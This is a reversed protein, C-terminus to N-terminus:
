ELHKGITDILSSDITGDKRKTPVIPNGSELIENGAYWLMAPVKTPHEKIFLKMLELKEEIQALSAKEVYAGQVADLTSRNHLNEFGTTLVPILDIDTPKYQGMWTNRAEVEAKILMDATAQGIFLSYSSGANAKFQQYQAFEGPYGGMSYYVVYIEGGGKAGYSAKYKDLDKMDRNNFYLVPKNDIKFWYDKLMLDTIYNIEEDSRNSALMFTMKVGRKSQSNVFQLRAESLPSDSNYYNFCFFDFGAEAYYQIERDTDAQTKDYRVQVTGDMEDFLNKGHEPSWRVNYRIKITEPEHYQGYFPVVRFKDMWETAVLRSKSVHNILLDYPPNEDNWYDRYWGDWMIAGVPIKIKDSSPVISGGAPEEIPPNPNIPQETVPPEVVPPPAIVTDTVVPPPPTVIPPIVVPPTVVPAADDLAVFKVYEGASNRSYGHSVWWESEWKVPLTGSKSPMLGGQGTIENSLKGKNIPKSVQVDSNFLFNLGRLTYYSRAADTQMLWYTSNTKKIVLISGPVLTWKGVEIEESDNTQIFVNNTFDADYLENIILSNISAKKNFNHSYDITELNSTNKSFVAFPFSILFTLKLINM